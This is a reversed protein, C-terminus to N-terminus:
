QSPPTLFKTRASFLLLEIAAILLPMDRMAFLPAQGSSLSACCGDDL